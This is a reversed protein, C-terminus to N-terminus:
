APVEGMVTTRYMARHYGDYDNFAYALRLGQDFYRRAEAGATTIKSTVVREPERRLRSVPAHSPHANATSIVAEFM